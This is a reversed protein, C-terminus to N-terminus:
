EDWCPLDTKEEKRGPMGRESTLGDSEREKERQDYRGWGPERKGSCERRARAHLDTSVAAGGMHVDTYVRAPLHYAQTGPAPRASLSPPELQSSFM